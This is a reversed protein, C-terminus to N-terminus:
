GHRAREPTLNYLVGIDKQRLGTEYLMLIEQANYKYPKKNEAKSLWRCNEPQYNGDNNIRDVTAGEFWTEWMTQKFNNYIHWDACVIIGRGGYRHYSHYTEDYCRVHMRKRCAYVRDNKTLIRSM